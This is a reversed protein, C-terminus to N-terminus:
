GGEGAATVRRMRFANATVALSSGSMALAAILPTVHGALALPVAIINYSIALAFNQRVLMQAARATRLATLVPSLRDGTFVISAANRALDIAAAPSASADAGALVPADNLGDGIMLIKRGQARWEDMLACKGAPPVEARWDAIGLRAAVAEVACRRDGSVLRIDLGQAKLADVVAQADPRLPDFFAFRVPASGPVSLWLELGDPNDRTEPTGNCWARSGLRLVGGGPAPASLGQGPHETVERQPLPGDWAAALAKALPHRSHVALSAATELAQRDPAGELAPRGLTLTGTKDLIVTDIAALRELADGSRVMVGRKLLGGVALVQVVPVALGLACPCTIILVTVAVMLAQPVAMGGWLYWGAFAAAALAHVVPTYLRAARDAIRVYRSRSQEAREMLRVIDALFSDDAARAVRVTLPAGANVTGSLVCDGPGVERPLTEGTALSEDIASRGATVTGDAPIREGMGVLVTMDPRLDRVPVVRSRGERDLLTATGGTMALLDTAASRASERARSDLYRGALLFAMLMVASDFYAHEGHRFTEFISMGVALILALSIPVDMNTHGARLARLASGFFPRGAFAVAPVAILAAMWHLFDRMAPGMAAGPASWLAFSLLMVNGAAFGAVGLCLLLFRKEREGEQATDRPDHPRVDYGLSAVKRAFRAADEPPGNWELSLRGTSFNLRARRVSPDATLASEIRGICGACHVGGVALTVRSLGGAGKEAFAACSQAIQDRDDQQASVAQGAM